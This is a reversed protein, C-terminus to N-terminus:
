RQIFQSLTVLQAGASQMAALAQESDDPQLNVGRCGDIIVQTQYGLRLADLVSFKVCYDTALGMVALQTIDREKLWGDLATQARHGNDFFASYSDIDPDEGKRFIAEISQRDLQAHLDAGLSGQVCHVPWWVQPLGELEGLTGVQANSNIAFSRHEAPHWDQSAIVTDNRALCAAIAQNAVAITADGEVVGLAGGPCFDNQLDILLLATKM